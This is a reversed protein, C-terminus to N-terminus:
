VYIRTSIAGDRSFTTQLGRQKGYEYHHVHMKTGDEYWGLVEGNTYGLTQTFTSSLQGNPHWTRCICDVNGNKYYTEIKPLGTDQYNQICRGHVTGDKFRIEDYFRYVYTANRILGNYSSNIRHDDDYLASVLTVTMDKCVMHNKCVSLMYAIVESPLM